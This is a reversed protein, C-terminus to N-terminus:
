KFLQFIFPQSKDTIDIGLPTLIDDSSTKDNVEHKFVNETYDLDYFTLFNAFLRCLITLEKSDKIQLAKANEWDFAQIENDDDNEEIAKFVSARIQARIQSLIGKSEFSQIVINKLENIDQM